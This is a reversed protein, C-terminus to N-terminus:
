PARPIRCTTGLRRACRGRAIPHHFVYILIPTAGDVPKAVPLPWEPWLVKYHPNKPRGSVGVLCSTAVHEPYGYGCACVGCGATPEAVETAPGEVPHEHQRFKSVGRVAGRILPVPHRLDQQPPVWGPRGGGPRRAAFRNATAEGPAGMQCLLLRGPGRRLSQGDPAVRGLPEVLNRGSVSAREPSRRALLRAGEVRSGNHVVNRAAALKPMGVWGMKLRIGHQLEVGAHHLDGVAGQEAPM